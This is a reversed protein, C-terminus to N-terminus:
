TETCVSYAYLAKKAYSLVDSTCEPVYRLMMVVITMTDYVVVPAYTLWSTKTTKM